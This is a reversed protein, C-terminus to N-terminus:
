LSDQIGGGHGTGGDDGHGRRDRGKGDGGNRWGDGEDDGEDDPQAGCDAARVMMDFAGLLGVLAVKAREIFSEACAPGRVDESALGRWEELQKKTVM